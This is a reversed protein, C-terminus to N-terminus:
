RKEVIGYKKCMEKERILTFKTEREFVWKHFKYYEMEVSNGDLIPARWTALLNKQLDFSDALRGLLILFLVLLPFGAQWNIDLQPRSENKEVGM